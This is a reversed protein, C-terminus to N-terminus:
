ILNKTEALWRPVMVEIDQGKKYDYDDDDYDIKSKPLWVAMDEDDEGEPLMLIAKDTEHLFTGSFPIMENNYM